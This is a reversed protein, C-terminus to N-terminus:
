RLLVQSHELEAWVGEGQGPGPLHRRRPFKLGQTRFAKVTAMASGTRAFTEFLGRM